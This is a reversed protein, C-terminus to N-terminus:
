DAASHEKTKIPSRENGVSALHAMGEDQHSSGVSAVTPACCAADGDAHSAFRRALLWAAALGILVAGAGLFLLRGGELVAGVTGLVAGSALASLILPGGCCLAMAGVVGLGITADNKM